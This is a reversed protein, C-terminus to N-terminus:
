RMPLYTAVDAVADLRAGDIRGTALGAEAVVVARGERRSAYHEDTLRFGTIHLFTAIDLPRLDGSAPTDEITKFAQAQDTTRFGIRVVSVVAANGHGDGVTLIVRDLSTCRTRVLFDRVKGTAATVCDLQHEARRALQKLALRSWAENTRGLRASRRAEARRTTLNRGPLSDVVDGAVNGPLADAAGSVAGAGGAGLGDAAGGSVAAIAVLAAVLGAGRWKRPTIPRKRGQDDTYVL